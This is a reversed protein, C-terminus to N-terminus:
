RVKLRSLGIVFFLITMVLLVAVPTIVTNLNGGYFILSKFGDMAWAVPSIHGITRLWSPVIEAPWFAGGLAALALALLTSVGRATQETQLQAALLLTLATMCATFAAMVLFAAVWQGHLNVGLLVGIVVSVASVLMGMIFYTLIKGGLIQARTLPLTLLRQLTGNKREEIIAFLGVGVNVMVGYIGMGPMSQGFSNQKLAGQINQTEHYTIQAPQSEWLRAAGQYVSQFFTSRLADSGFALKPNAQVANLGAHAAVAAGNAQRLAVQLIALVSDPTTSNANGSHYVVHTDKGDFLNEEFGAPIEILGQTTGDQLRQQAGDLGLSDPCEARKAPCVVLDSGTVQLIAVLRGSLKSSDQDIIDMARASSAGFLGFGAGTALGVVVIFLAPFIVVNFWVARNSFIIRLDNRTINLLKTM